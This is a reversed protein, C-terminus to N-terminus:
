RTAAICYLTEAARIYLRGNAAAITSRTFGRGTAGLKVEHLIKFEDGAALVTAERLENIIYLKDDAGTLSARIVTRGPVDGQWRPKGTKPDVCTIVRRDDDLFYLRGKYFLPTSADPIRREFTWAVHDDGVLGSTGPRLAFLTSFKPGVVYILEDGVVASPVIRWHNIKKPNYGGWRWLEKGTEPDHATLYDAGYVLVSSRGGLECPIATSYAEQAEGVADTPRDQRWLDKGTAPDIALLYSETVGETPTHPPGYANPRKNRIAVVYLKGRYLLPSSSYGFMLANFGHDKELDRSWLLKGEFDYAFLNATGYFFWATKGDTVPSASAMNNRAFQRDKGTKRSWLVKGDRADLCLALLDSTSADVTSVFVRDGWVIPTSGSAGPLATAWVVNETDSFRAPLGTETTSGNLFPGRWQPWNEALALSAALAVCAAVAARRM